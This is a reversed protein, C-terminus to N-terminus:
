TIADVAVKLPRMLDAVAAARDIAHYGDPLTRPAGIIGISTIM